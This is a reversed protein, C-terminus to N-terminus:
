DEITLGPIRRFDRSNRTVLTGGSELTIAAIRLDSKKITRCRDVLDQYRAIATETLPLIRIGGLLGVAEALRRYAHVLAASSKAQRVMTYWGSLQEEVTIVTIALDQKPCARVRPMVTPHEHEYLSLTDTDLVFLSM